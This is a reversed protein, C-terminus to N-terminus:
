AHRIMPPKVDGGPYGGQGAEDGPNFAVIELILWARCEARGGCRRRDGSRFPGSCRRVGDTAANVHAETSRSESVIVRPTSWPKRDGAIVSIDLASGAVTDSSKNLPM